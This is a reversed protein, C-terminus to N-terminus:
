CVSCYIGAAMYIGLCIVAQHVLYFPQGKSRDGTTHVLHPYFFFIFSLYIFVTLKYTMIKDLTIQCTYATTNFCILVEDPKLHACVGLNFGQKSYPYLLLESNLLIVSFSSPLCLVRQSLISKQKIM